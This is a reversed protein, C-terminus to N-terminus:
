DIEELEKNTIEHCKIKDRHNNLFIHIWPENLRPKIGRVITHGHEDLYKWVPVNLFDYEWCDTYHEFIDIKTDKCSGLRNFGKPLGLFVLGILMMMTGPVHKDCSESHDSRKYCEPWPGNVCGPCQYEQIAEDINMNYFEKM